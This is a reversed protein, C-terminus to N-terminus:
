KIYGLARLDPAAADGLGTDPSGRKVEARWERLAKRLRRANRDEPRPLTENPDSALDYYEGRRTARYHFLILKHPWIVAADRREPKNGKLKFWFSGIFVPRHEDDVVRGGRTFFSRGQMTSPPELGALTLFTPAVDVLSVPTHVVSAEREPLSVILPIRVLTEYVSKGHGYTYSKHEWFEEGHDATIAVITRPQSSLEDLTSGLLTDMFICEGYYLRKYALRHRRQQPRYDRIYEEDAPDYYGPPPKYPGHPDMYHVWLFCPRDHRRGVYSTLKSTLILSDSYTPEDHM